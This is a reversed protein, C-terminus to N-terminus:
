ISVGLILESPIGKSLDNMSYSNNDLYNRYLEVMTENTYKCKDLAMLEFHSLRVLYENDKIARLLFISIINSNLMVKIVNKKMEDTPLYNLFNSIAEAERHTFFAMDNQSLAVIENYVLSIEFSTNYMMAMAIKEALTNFNM